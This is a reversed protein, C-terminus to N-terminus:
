KQPEHWKRVEQNYSEDPGIPASDDPFNPLRLLIYNQKATLENVREDLEKIQSGVERMEQIAGAADEKNRKAQAIAKSVKNRRAKLQERRSLGVRREEDIKILEDLEEPKIGRTALKEKAWDLKERIVKIDLM